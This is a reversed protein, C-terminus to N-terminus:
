PAPARTNTPRQPSNIKEAGKRKRAEGSLGEDSRGNLQPDCLFIDRKDCEDRHSLFFRIASQQNGIASQRNGIASKQNEGHSQAETHPDSYEV